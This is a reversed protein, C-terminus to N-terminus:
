KRETSIPTSFLLLFSSSPANAHPGEFVKISWPKGLNARYAEQEGFSSFGSTSSFSLTSSGNQEFRSNSFERTIIDGTITGVENYFIVRLVGSKSTNDDLTIDIVPILTVDRQTPDADPGERIPARWYTTAKDVQAIAGKIPFDPMAYPDEQAKVNSRFLQLGLFAGGILLALFALSAIKEVGSFKQIQLSPTDSPQDSSVTDSDFLDSNSSPTLEDEFTSAINSEKIEPVAVEPPTEIKAAVAIPEKRYFAPKTATEAVSEVIPPEVVDPLEPAQAATYDFDFDDWIAEETLGVGKPPNKSSRSPAEVKGRDISGLESERPKPSIEQAVIPTMPVVPPLSRNVTGKQIRVIPEDERAKHSSKQESSAVERVTPLEDDLNWLDTEISLTTRHRPIGDSKQPRDNKQAPPDSHPEDMSFQLSPLSFIFRSHELPFLFDFFRTALDDIEPSQFAAFM